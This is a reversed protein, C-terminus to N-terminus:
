RRLERRKFFKILANVYSEDTRISILDAGSKLFVSRCYDVNDNYQKKYANRVKASSTDLWMLSNTEADTVRVLGINPVEMEKPDYIRIGVLDHRRKAVSLADKFDRDM